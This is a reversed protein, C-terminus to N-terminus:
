IKNKKFFYIKNISLNPYYIKKRCYVSLPHNHNQPVDCFQGFVFLLNSVVVVLTAIEYFKGGLNPNNKDPKESMLILHFSCIQQFINLTQILSTYLCKPCCGVFHWICYFSDLVYPYSGCMLPLIYAFNLCFSTDNTQGM